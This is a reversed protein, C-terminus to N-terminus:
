FIPMVTMWRYTATFGVIWWVVSIFVGHNINFLFIALEAFFLFLSIHILVPLAEVTLQLHMKDM